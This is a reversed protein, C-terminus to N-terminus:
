TVTLVITNLYHTAWGSHTDSITLHHPAARWPRVDGGGRREGGGLAHGPHGLLLRAPCAVMLSPPLLHDQPLHVYRLKALAMRQVMHVTGRGGWRM